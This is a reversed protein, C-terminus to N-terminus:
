KDPPGLAGDIEGRVRQEIVGRFMIAAFPLDAAVLVRDPEVSMRGTVSM